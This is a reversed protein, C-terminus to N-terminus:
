LVVLMSDENVENLRNRLEEVQKRCELVFREVQANFEKMESEKLGYFREKENELEELECVESKLVRLQQLDLNYKSVLSEIESRTASIKFNQSAIKQELM